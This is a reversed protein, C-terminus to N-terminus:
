TVWESASARVPEAGWMVSLGPETFMAEAVADGANSAIILNGCTLISNDESM